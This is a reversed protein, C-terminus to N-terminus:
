RPHKPNATTALPPTTTIIIMGIFVLIILSIWAIHYDALTDYIWGAFLPGTLGLVATIGMTFGFISGFNSGRFHERLMTVRVSNNGGWGIGFLIVFPFILWIAESSIYSMCLMGLITILLFGIGVQKKNYRDSLWGSGLRGIISILPVVTAVLGAVSRVIGVSSLYPM